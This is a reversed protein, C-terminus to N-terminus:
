AKAEKRDKLTRRAIFAISLVTLVLFLISIPTSVFVSWDGSSITLAQRVSQEGIPELVFGIMMPALPFALKRMGYGLFGFGLM